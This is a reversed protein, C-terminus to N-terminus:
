IYGYEIKKCVEDLWFYIRDQVWEDEDKYDKGPGIIFETMEPYIVENKYAEEAAIELARKYLRLQRSEDNNPM